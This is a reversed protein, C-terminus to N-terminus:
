TFTDMNSSWSFKWTPLLTLVFGNIEENVFYEHKIMMDLEFMIPLNVDIVEAEYELFEGYYNIPFRTISRGLSRHIGCGLSFTEISANLCDSTRSFKYYRKYDELGFWSKQDGKDMFICKFDIINQRPIFFIENSSKFNQSRQTLSHKM